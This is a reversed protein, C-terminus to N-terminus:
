PDSVLLRLGAVQLITQVMSILCPGMSSADAFGISMRGSEYSVGNQRIIRKFLDPHDSVDIDEYSLWMATHGEDTIVWGGGDRNLIMHLEDGDPFLFGTHVQYRDTGREEFGIMSSVSDIMMRMDDDDM